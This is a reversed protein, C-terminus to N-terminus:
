LEPEMDLEQNILELVRFNFLLWVISEDKKNTTDLPNFYIDLYLKIKIITISM